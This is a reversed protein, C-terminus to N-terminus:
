EEESLNHDVIQQLKDENFLPLADLTGDFLAEYIKKDARLQYKDLSKIITSGETTKIMFSIEDNRLLDDKLVSVNIANPETYIDDRGSIFVNQFLM